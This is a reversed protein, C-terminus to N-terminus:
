RRKRRRFGEATAILGIAGLAYTSPEPVSFEILPSAGVSFDDDLRDNWGWVDFWNLTLHDQGEEGFVRNNNPQQPQWDAYAVATGDVGGQWFLEGAEPGVVWRWEGEVESDSGGLWLTFGMFYEQTLFAEEEQTTITALHGQFGRYTFSEAVAKGEQWTTRDSYRAYYHGNAPNLMPCPVPPERGNTPCRLTGASLPVAILLQCAVCCASFYSHM